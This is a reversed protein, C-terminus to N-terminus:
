ALELPHLRGDKGGGLDVEVLDEIEYMEAFVDAVHWTANCFAYDNQQYGEAGRWDALPRRYTACRTPTSM